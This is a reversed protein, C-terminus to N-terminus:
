AWCTVSIIELLVPKSKQYATLVCLLYIYTIPENHSIARKTALAM